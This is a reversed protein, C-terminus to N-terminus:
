VGTFISEISDAVPLVFCASLQGLETGANFLTPSNPVFELRSMMGYFTKEIEKQDGGYKREIKALAKAIRMFM